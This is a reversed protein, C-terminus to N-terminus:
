WAEDSARLDDLDVAFEDNGVPAAAYGAQDRSSADRSKHLRVAAAIARRAFEAPTLGRARSVADLEAFSADEISLDMIHM